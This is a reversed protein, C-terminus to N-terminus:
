PVIRSLREAAQYSDFAVTLRCGRNLEAAKALQYDGYLPYAILIDMIGAALM